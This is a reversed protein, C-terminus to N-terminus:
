EENELKEFQEYLEDADNSNSFEFYKEQKHTLIYEFGHYSYWSCYNGVCIIKGKRKIEEYYNM